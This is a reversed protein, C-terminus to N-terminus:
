LAQTTRATARFQRRRQTDMENDVWALVPSWLAEGVKSYGRWALTGSDFGKLRVFAKLIADTFNAEPTSGVSANTRLPGLYIRNRRRGNPVGAVYNGRFSGVLAVEKPYEASGGASALTWTATAIPPNPEPADAIYAKIQCGNSARDISQSLFTAIKNTGLNYFSEISTKLDAMITAPAVSSDCVFNFSNIAVDRPLATTYPLVVQVKWHQDLAM